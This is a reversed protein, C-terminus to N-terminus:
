FPAFGAANWYDEKLAEDQRVLADYHGTEWDVLEMFFDKVDEDEAAEAEAKYHQISNLELRIAISLATMEYHADGIRKKLDESFIPNDGSLDTKDGLSVSKDAKGTEKISKYQRELFQKHALEEEALKRFLERGKSDSMTDAAMQYFYYGDVETQIAKKLGELLRETM